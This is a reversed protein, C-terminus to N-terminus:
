VAIKLPDFEGSLSAALGLTETSAAAPGVVGFSAGATAAPVRPLRIRSGLGAARL